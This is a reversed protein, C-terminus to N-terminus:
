QKDGEGIPEKLFPLTSYLWDRWDWATMGFQPGDDIEENVSKIRQELSAITADKEALQQQSKEAHEILIIVDKPDLSLVEGTSLLARFDSTALNLASKVAEWEM